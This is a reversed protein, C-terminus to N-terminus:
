EIIRQAPTQGTEPASAPSEGDRIGAMLLGLQERTANVAPMDAMIQGRYMVVIRDSLSMIEDLEASVLLVATGQDRATVIQNHIFEISGVDLGRTPQNAVLLKPKRALERAVIVKQQNGGSLSSTMTFISPTRIDFEKTLREAQQQIAPENLIIGHSFPPHYYDALILNDAVPYTLVLGFKQRDEPIHATGLNTILRPNKGAVVHELLTITGGKLERLGTIAEALETQGNGQVGAIGVIEGARVDFSVDRVALHRRDDEVQLGTVKLIVEQPTAEGKNVELLVNRGVMMRALSEQTAQGPTTNGVVKGSRLVTIEDAVELVERLKHTIFIISVGRDKLRRMIKFLDDAEQPTLVATPEDLILVKAERHLAKIIEVRQQAGVPLDRVYAEPSVELGYEQSLDRVRRVVKQRDIWSLSAICGVTAGIAPWIPTAAAQSAVIVRLIEYIIGFGFGTLAGFLAGRLRFRTHFLAPLAYLWGVVFWFVLGFASHAASAGALWDPLPGDLCGALVAGFLAAVAASVLVQDTTEEVGLMINETVTMVPVLMFHQHVMGIGLRIADSPNHFQVPKGNVFIQGEDPQYLSYIINMLTTKGAGNEGLFAHIKGQELKFSVNDNAVVGPFRKTIGQAEIVPTM